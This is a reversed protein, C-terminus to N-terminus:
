GPIASGRVPASTDSRSRRRNGNDRWQDSRCHRRPHLDAIGVAPHHFVLCHIHSEAEGAVALAFTQAQPNGLTPPTVLCDPPYNQGVVAGPEPERHHVLRRVNAMAARVLPAGHSMVCSMRIATTSPGFPKGSAM